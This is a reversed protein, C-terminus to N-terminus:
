EAVKLFETSFHQLELENGAEFTLEVIGYKGKITPRWEESTYGASLNNDPPIMMRFEGNILHLQQQGLPLFIQEDAFSTVLSPTVPGTTYEETRVLITSFSTDSNGQIWKLNLLDKTAKPAENLAIHLITQRDTGFINGPSGTGIEYLNNDVAAILKNDRSSFRDVTYDHYSSWSQNEISYSISDELLSIIIRKNMPDYGSRYIAADDPALAMNFYSFMHPDAIEKLQEKGALIFVKKQHDDLFFRGFPTNISGYKASTGAYGGEQTYIQDSPMPFLGGNGLVVDGSTTNTFTKENVYTRWLSHPTHAYLINNYEFINTIVGTEKPIDHFNNILFTRYADLQENEFSELSYVIRNPFTNIIDLFESVPYYKNLTNEFNYHKNYDTGPGSSTDYDWIGLTEVPERDHLINYKPAYPMTGEIETEGEYTVPSWHRYAYNGKTEIYTEISARHRMDFHHNVEGQLFTYRSLFTDGGFAQFNTPDATTDFFMEDILIYEASAREGYVNEAFSMFNYVELTESQSDVHHRTETIDANADFYYILTGNTGGQYVNNIPDWWSHGPYKQREKPITGTAMQMVVFGTTGRLLINNGNIPISRLSTSEFPAVPQTSSPNLGYQIHLKSIDTNVSDWELGYITSYYVGQLATLSRSPSNPNRHKNDAIRTMQRIAVQKVENVSELRETIGHIVDPSYMAFYGERSIDQTVEPHIDADGFLLRRAPWDPSIDFFMSTKGNFPIPALGSDVGEYFEKTIGQTTIIGNGVKNRRQRVFAFGKILGELEPPIIINKFILGLIQHTVQNLNLLFPQSTLASPMRHHVTGDANQWGRLRTGSESAPNNRNSLKDQSSDGPIHYATGYIDGNFIPVVALSYVEDRQYGKYKHTYDPNKYNEFGTDVLTDLRISSDLYGQDFGLPPVTPVWPTEVGFFDTMTATRQNTGQHDVKSFHHVQINEALTEMASDVFTYDKTTLNALFLHNDKQLIHKANDYEVADQVLEDLILTELKQNESYYTYKTSDANIPIQSIIHANLINDEGVYTIVGIELIDYALDIHDVSIEISKGASTQPPAGEYADEGGGITGEAIPIGQTIQSFTTSNGSKMKLRAVFKYLGTTLSGGEVVALNNVRPLEPNIFLKTLSSFNTETLITGLVLRKPINIADIFYLIIQGLHNKRAQSDVPTQFNLLDNEIISSQIGIADYETPAAFWNDTGGGSSSRYFTPSANTNTSSLWFGMEEKGGPWSNKIFHTGGVPMLSLPVAPYAGQATFPVEVVLPPSTSTNLSVASTVKNTAPDLTLTLKGTPSSDTLVSIESSINDSKAGIQWVQETAPAEFGSGTRVVFELINNALLKIISSGEDSKIFYIIEDEIEVEGLIVANTLNLNELNALLLTGPESRVTGQGDRIIHKAYPYTGVPQKLPSFETSLGNNFNSDILESM